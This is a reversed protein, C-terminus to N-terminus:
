SSILAVTPAAWAVALERRRASLLPAAFGAFDGVATPNAAAAAGGVRLVFAAITTDGRALLATWSGLDIERAALGLAARGASDRIIAFYAALATATVATAAGGTDIAVVTTSSAARSVMRLRNVRAAVGVAALATAIARRLAQLLLRKVRLRTNPRVLLRAKPKNHVGTRQRHVESAQRM